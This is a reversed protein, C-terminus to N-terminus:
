RSKNDQQATQKDSTNPAEEKESPTASIETPRLTAFQAIKQGLAVLEDSLTGATVPGEPIVAGRVFAFLVLVVGFGFLYMELPLAFTGLSVAESGVLTSNMVQSYDGLHFMLLILDAGMVTFALLFLALTFSWNERAEAIQVNLNAINSGFYGRTLGKSMYEVPNADFHALREGWRLRASRLRRVLTRQQPYVIGLIIGGFSVLQIIAEILVKLLDSTPRVGLIFLVLSFFVLLVGIALFGMVAHFHRVYLEQFRM